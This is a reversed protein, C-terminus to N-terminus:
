MSLYCTVHSVLQITNQNKVLFFCFLCIRCMTAGLLLVWGTWIGVSYWTSMKLKLLARTQKTFKCNLEIFLLDPHLAAVSYVSFAPLTTATQGFQLRIFPELSTFIARTPHLVGSPLYPSLHTLSRDPLIIFPKQETNVRLSLHALSDPDCFLIAKSWICVQCIMLDLSWAGALHLPHTYVKRKLPNWKKKKENLTKLRASSVSDFLKHM